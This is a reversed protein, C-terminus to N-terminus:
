FKVATAYSQTIFRLADAPKDHEMVMLEAGADRMVPVIREALM